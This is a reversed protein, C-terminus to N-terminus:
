KTGTLRTLYITNSHTLKHLNYVNIRRQVDDYVYLKGDNIKPILASMNNFEGPGRGQRGLTKLYSGDPNFVLISHMAAIYVRNLSDVAIHNVSIILSDGPPFIQVKSFTVKKPPIANSDYVRLSDQKQPSKSGYPKNRSCSLCLIFLVLIFFLNIYTINKM